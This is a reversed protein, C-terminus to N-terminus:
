NLIGAESFFDDVYVFFTKNSLYSELWKFIPTKFGPYAMKEQFVKHDLIDFAKQLDILIMGTHMGKNMGTLVFDTLQSSM